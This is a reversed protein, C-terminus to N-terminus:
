VYNDCQEWIMSFYSNRGYQTSPSINGPWMALFFRARRPVGWVTLKLKFDVEASACPHSRLSLEAGDIASNSIRRIGTAM